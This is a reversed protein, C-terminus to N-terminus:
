RLVFAMRPAALRSMRLLRAATSLVEPARLLTSLRHADDGHRIIALFRLEDDLFDGRVAAALIERPLVKRDDVAHVGLRAQQLLVEALVLDRVTEHAPFLKKSRRSILSMMAYMVASSFGKRRDTRSRIM